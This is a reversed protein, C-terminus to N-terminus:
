NVTSDMLTEAKKTEGDLLWLIVKDYVGSAKRKEFAKVASSKTKYCQAVTPYKNGKFYSYVHYFIM